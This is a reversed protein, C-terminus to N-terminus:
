GNNKEEWAASYISYFEKFTKLKVRKGWDFGRIFNVAEKYTPLGDEKWLRNFATSLEEVTVFPELICQHLYKLKYAYKKDRFGFTQYLHETPKYLKQAIETIATDECIYNTTPIGNFLILVQSLTQYAIKQESTNSNAVSTIKAKLEAKNMMRGATMAITMAMTIMMM